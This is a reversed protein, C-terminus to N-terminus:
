IKFIKKTSLLFVKFTSAIKQYISKKTCLSTFLENLAQKETKTLASM